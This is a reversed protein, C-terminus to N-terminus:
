ETLRFPVSILIRNRPRFLLVYKILAVTQNHLLLQWRRRPIIEPVVVVINADCQERSTRDIYKILPGTVSRFPSDIAVLPIDSGTRKWQTRVQQAETPELAVFVATKEGALSDVFSLTRLAARDVRAIPIIVENRRAASPLNALDFQEDYPVSVVIMNPEFLLALKLRLSTQNHLFLDWFHRPAKEPLMVVIRAQPHRKGLQRIHELLAQGVPKSQAEIMQLPAPYGAQAWREALEKAEHPLGAPSDWEEGGPLAAGDTCAATAGARIALPQQGGTRQVVHVASVEGSLIGAVDLARATIRDV